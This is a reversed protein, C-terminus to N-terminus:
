YSISVNSDIICLHATIYLSTMTYRERQLVPNYVSNNLHNDKPASNIPMKEKIKRTHLNDYKKTFM